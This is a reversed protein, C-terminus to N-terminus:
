HVKQFIDRLISHEVLGGIPGDLTSMPPGLVAGKQVLVGRTGGQAHFVMTKARPRLYGGAPWFLLQWFPALGLGAIPIARPSVWPLTLVAPAMPQAPSTVTERAGCAVGENHGFVGREAPQPGLPWMGFNRVEAGARQWLKACGYVERPAM